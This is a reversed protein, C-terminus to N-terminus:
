FKHLSVKKLGESFTPPGKWLSPSTQTYSNVVCYNCDCNLIGDNTKCVHNSNSIDNSPLSHYVCRNSSNTSDSFSKCQGFSVSRPRLSLASLRLNTPKTDHLSFDEIQSYCDIVHSNLSVSTHKSELEDSLGEGSNIESSTQASEHGFDEPINANTNDVAVTADTNTESVSTETSIKTVQFRGRKEVKQKPKSEVSDADPNSLENKYPDDKVAEVKFRSLAKKKPASLDPESQTEIPMSTSIELSSLKKDGEGFRTEDHDMECKYSLDESVLTKDEMATPTKEESTGLAEDGDRYTETVDASASDSHKSDTSTDYLTHGSNSTSANHQQPHGGNQRGMTKALAQELVNLDSKHVGKGISHLNEISAHPSQSALEQSLHPNRRSSTPSRPPSVTPPNSPPNSPPNESAVSSSQSPLSASPPYNWGPYQGFPMNMQQHPHQGGPHQQMQMMNSLLMAQLYSPYLQPYNPQHYGFNPMHMMTHQMMALMHQMQNQQNPNYFMGYPLNANPYSSSANTSKSPIQDTPVNASAHSQNQVHSTGEPAPVDNTMASQQSSSSYQQSPLQSPIQQSSQSQNQLNRPSIQTGETSQHMSSSDQGSQQGHSVQNQSSVPVQSSYSAPQSTPPMQQSVSQSSAPQASMPQSSGEAAKQGSTSQPQNSLIESGTNTGQISTNQSVNNNIPASSPPVQSQIPQSVNGSGVTPTVQVNGAVTTSTSPPMSGSM